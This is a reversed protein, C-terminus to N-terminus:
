VVGRTHAWVIAQIRDRAELKQLLNSVHTKVTAEGLFLEAAIEGNSRGAAVLKLVERERETLRAEDMAAAGRSGAGEDLVASAQAAAAEAVAAPDVSPSEAGERAGAVARTESGGPARSVGAGDDTPGDAGQAAVREIVARTVDPGLLAQGSALTRIADILQEARATKLLFGSVGASLADFLYRDHGFTTLILIAPRAGGPSPGPVAGSGSGSAAGPGPRGLIRRSAEIGDMRPMEVDMCVVDPRLSAALDVAEDGDAAEGVVEIDEESELIIRFGSRVLAQDDVLLVRIM